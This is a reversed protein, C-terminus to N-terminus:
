WYRNGYNRRKDFVLEELQGRDLARKFRQKDSTEAQAHFQKIVFAPVHKGWDKNDRHIAWWRKRFEPCDGEQLIRQYRDTWIPSSQGPRPAHATWELVHRHKGSTRRITRSM